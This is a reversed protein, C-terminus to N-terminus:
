SAAGSLLRQLHILGQQRRATTIVRRWAPDILQGAMERTIGNESLLGFRHYLERYSEAPGAGVQLNTMGHLLPLVVNVAMERARGAGIYSKGGDAVTLGGTLKSPSSGAASAALGALLGVDLYSVVL